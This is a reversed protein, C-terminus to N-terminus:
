TFTLINYNLIVEILSYDTDSLAAMLFPRTIETVDCGVAENGKKVDVYNKHRESNPRFKPAGWSRETVLSVPFM